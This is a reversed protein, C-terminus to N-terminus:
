MKNQADTMKACLETRDFPKVVSDTFGLSKLDQEQSVFADATIAFVAGEFGLEDRLKRTAEYGDMVPMQLDMFIIDYGRTRVLDLAVAGNIAHDAEINWLQLYKRLVVWNLQNDEVVLVRLNTFSASDEPKCVRPGDAPMKPQLFRLSFSFCSGHDPASQINIESGQLELIKKTISLGLGTGGFQRAIGAHAQGFEEFVKALKDEAIGIGSDKVAFHISYGSEDQGNLNVQLQVSGENTFKLANGLLNHLVQTLRGPDGNIWQPLSSDIILELRLDKTRATVAHTRNIEQLLQPLNFDIEEFTLKSGTIKNYDLIDNVVNLLHDSAFKLGNLYEMQHESPNEGLLLNTMGIIGNLPTRIEHSMTSLFQKQTKSAVEAMQKLQLQERAIRMLQENKKRLQLLLSAQRALRSLAARQVDDLRRPQDSLVCVAGLRFGNQSVIPAGAYFRINPDNIVAPLDHFREDELTNEVIFLDDGLIVHSCISMDRPSDGGAFGQSAKNWQRHRDILSVLSMPTGCILNALEVLEDFDREATTDLINYSYLDELRQEENLPIKAVIM